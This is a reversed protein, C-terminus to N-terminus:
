EETAESSSGVSFRTVLSEALSSDVMARLARVFKGWATDFAASAAESASGAALRGGLALEEAQSTAELTDTAATFKALREPNPSLDTRAALRALFGRARTVEEAYRMAILESMQVGGLLSANLAADVSGNEDRFAVM